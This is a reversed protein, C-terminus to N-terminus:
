NPCLPSSIYIQHLKEQLVLFFATYEFYLINVLIKTLFTLELLEGVKKTKLRLVLSVKTLM